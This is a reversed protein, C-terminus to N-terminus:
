HQEHDINLDIETGSPIQRNGFAVLVRMIARETEPDGESLRTMNEIVVSEGESLGSVIVQDGRTALLDLPRFVARDEVVTYVGTLGRDVLATIPLLVGEVTDVTLAVSVVEGVRYRDDELQVEIPFM